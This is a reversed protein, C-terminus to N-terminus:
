ARSRRFRPRLSETFPVESSLQHPTPLAPARFVPKGWQVESRTVVRVSEAAASARGVVLRLWHEPLNM